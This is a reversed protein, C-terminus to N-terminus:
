NEKFHNDIGQFTNPFKEQTTREKSPICQLFSVVDEPHLSTALASLDIFDRGFHRQYTTLQKINQQNRIHPKTMSPVVGKAPLRRHSYCGYKHTFDDLEPAHPQVQYHFRSETALPQPIERRWNPAADIAYRVQYGQPIGLYDEKYTSLYQSRMVKQVEDSTPTRIWPSRSDLAIGKEEHPLKWVAFTKDPHPRNNRAGSATAARIPEPKSYQKWSFENNYMSIGVPDCLYYPNRYSKSTKPRVAVTPSDVKNPYDRNMTTEYPDWISGGLSALATKPRRLTRDLPRSPKESGGVKSSILLCAALHECKEKDVLSKSKDTLYNLQEMFQPKLIDGNLQTTIM